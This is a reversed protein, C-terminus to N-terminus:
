YLNSASDSDILVEKSIGGIKMTIVPESATSLACRQDEIIFTFSDDVGPQM